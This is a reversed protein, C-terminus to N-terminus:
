ALVGLESEKRHLSWFPFLCHTSRWLTHVLRATDQYRTGVVCLATGSLETQYYTGTLVLPDRRVCLYYLCDFPLVSVPLSALNPFISGAHAFAGSLPAEIIDSLFLPSLVRPPIPFHCFSRTSIHIGPARFHPVCSFHFSNTSCTCSANRLNAQVCTVIPDLSFLFNRNCQNFLCLPPTLPRAPFHVIFVYLFDTRRL